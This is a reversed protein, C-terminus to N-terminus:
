QLTLLVELSFPLLIISISSDYPQPTNGCGSIYGEIIRKGNKMFLLFLFFDLDWIFSSFFYIVRDIASMSIYEVAWLCSWIESLRTTMWMESKIHKAIFGHYIAINWQASLHSQAISLMKERRRRLHYDIDLAPVTIQRYYICVREM